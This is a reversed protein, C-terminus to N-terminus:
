YFVLNIYFFSVDTILSKANSTVPVKHKTPSWVQQVKNHISLARQFCQNQLLNHVPELTKGNIGAKKLQLQLRQLSAFLEGHDAFKYFGLTVTKKILYKVKKTIKQKKEKKM